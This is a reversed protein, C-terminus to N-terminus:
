DEKQEKENDEIEVQPEIEKQLELKDKLWENKRDKIEKTLIEKAGIYDDDEFKDLADKIKETNIPM